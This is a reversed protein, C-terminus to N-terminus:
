DNELESWDLSWTKGYDSLIYQAEQEYMFDLIYGVAGNYALCPIRREGNSHITYVGEKLAKELTILNIGLEEEIEKYKKNEQMIELEEIDNIQYKELLDEIAGLKQVLEWTDDYLHRPDKVYYAGNVKFTLREM